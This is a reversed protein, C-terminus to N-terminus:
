PGCGCGSTPIKGAPIAGCPMPDGCWPGRRFRSLETQVRTWEATTETYRRATTMDKFAGAQDGLTERLLARAYNARAWAGNQGIAADLEARAREFAGNGYDILGLWTLAVQDDPKQALAAECDGIAETSRDLLVKTGCRLALTSGHKPSGRLVADYEALAKDYEGREEYIAARSHRAPWYAPAMRTVLAYDALAQETKGKGRWADARRAVALSHGPRLTLEKNLEAIARDWEGMRLFMDGRAAVIEIDGPNSPLVRAFDELAFVFERRKYQTFGRARMAETFGAKMRIAMDFADVARELEGRDALTLGRFYHALPSQPRRKVAEDFDALAKALNGNERASQGSRMASDFNDTAISVENPAALCGDISAVCKPPAVHQAIAPIVGTVSLAILALRAFFGAGSMHSKGAGM